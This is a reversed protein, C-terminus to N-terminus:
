STKVPENKAEPSVGAPTVAPQFPESITEIESSDFAVEIITTVGRGSDRNYGKRFHLRWLLPGELEVGPNEEAPAYTELTQGPGLPRNLNQGALDFSSGGPHDYLLVLSDPDGKKAQPCVFNNALLRGSNRPDPERDFLLEHDLPPFEQDSSVNEFRLHLQLVPATPPKTEKVSPDYHAFALPQRTVRLPTVRVSGYRESQGLRLTHRPPMPANEKVHQLTVEKNKNKSVPPKTDPLSELQYKRLAQTYVLYTLYLTALGLLVAARLALDFQRKPVMKEAAPKESASAVASAPGTLTPGSATAISRAESVASPHSATAPGAMVPAAMVPVASVAAPSGSGTGFDFQPAADRPTVSAGAAPEQTPHHFAAEEAFPHMAPEAQGTPSHVYGGAFPNAAEAPMHLHTPHAPLHEATNMITEATVDVPATPGAAAQSQLFQQLQAAEPELTANSVPIEQPPASPDHEPHHFAVTEAFPHLAAEAHGTPSHVYGGAFPNAGEAPMHLHTPHAPLHEAVQALAEETLMAAADASTPGTDGSLGSDGSLRHGAVVIDDESLPHTPAAPASAPEDVTEALVPHHEGLHAHPAEIGLAPAAGCDQSAMVSQPEESLAALVPQPLVPPEAVVEGPVRLHAGCHCCAVISGAPVEAIMLGTCTGCQLEIAM